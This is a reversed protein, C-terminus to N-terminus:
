KLLQYPACGGAGCGYRDGTEGVTFLLSDGTGEQRTELPFLFSVDLRSELSGWCGRHSECLVRSM